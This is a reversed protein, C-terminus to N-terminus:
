PLPWLVGESTLSNNEGFFSQIRIPLNVTEPSIDVVALISYDGDTLSMKLDPLIYKRLEHLKRLAASLNSFNWHENTDNRTLLYHQSLAHFNLQYHVSLLPTEEDFWWKHKQRISFQIRANLPVGNELANQLYNTLKFDLGTLVQYKPANGVLKYSKFSIGEASAVASVVLFFSILLGAFVKKFICLM